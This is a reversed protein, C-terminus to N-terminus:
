RGDKRGTKCKEERRTSEIWKCKGHGKKNEWETQLVDQGILYNEQKRLLATNLMWVYRCASLEYTRPETKWLIFVNTSLKFVNM